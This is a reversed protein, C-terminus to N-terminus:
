IWIRMTLMYLVAVSIGADEVGRGCDQLYFTLVMLRDSCAM